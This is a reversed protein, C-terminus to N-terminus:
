ENRGAFAVIFAKAWVTERSKKKPRQVLRLKGRHGQRRATGGTELSRHMDVEMRVTMETDADRVWVGNLCIGPVNKLCITLHSDANFLKDILLPNRGFLAFYM